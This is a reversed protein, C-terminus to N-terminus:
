WIYFLVHLLVCGNHHLIEAVIVFGALVRLEGSRDGVGTRKERTFFQGPTMFDKM